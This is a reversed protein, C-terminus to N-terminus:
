SRLGLDDGDDEVHSAGEGGDEPAREPHEDYFAEGLEGIAKENTPTV